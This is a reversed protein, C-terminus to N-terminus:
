LIGGTGTYVCLAIFMAATVIIAWRRMDQQQMSGYVPVSSVHCQWLCLGITLPPPPPPPTLYDASPAFHECVYRTDLVFQPSLM